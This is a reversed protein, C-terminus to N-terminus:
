IEKRPAPPKRLELGLDRLQTADVPAPAGTMLEEAQQNKPFAIVERITEEGAALMVMRDLGPAIGGHPPAGYQFAELLFGFRRTAEERNMGLGAFVRQQMEPDHIRISGSGLEVGNLVIDYARARVKLPDSEMLHLDAPNPATFPHHGAQIQGTEASMEFLPMETVWTFAFRNKPILALREALARRVAALGSAVVPPRDAV